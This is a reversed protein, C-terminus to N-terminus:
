CETPSGTGSRGSRWGILYDPQYRERNTYGATSGQPLFAAIAAASTFTGNDSTKVVKLQAPPPTCTM